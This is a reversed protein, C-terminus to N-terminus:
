YLSDPKEGKLFAVEFEQKFDVPYRCHSQVVFYHNRVIFKGSVGAIHGIVALRMPLLAQFSFCSVELDWKWSM